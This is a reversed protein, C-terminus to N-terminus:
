MSSGVMRVFRFPVLSQSALEWIHVALCDQPFESLNLVSDRPSPALNGGIALSDGAELFIATIGPPRFQHQALALLHECEM